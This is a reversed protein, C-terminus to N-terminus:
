VHFYRGLWRAFVIAKLLTTQKENSLQGFRPCDLKELNKVSFGYDSLVAAKEEGKAWFCINGQREGLREAIDSLVYDVKCFAYEGKESWDLGHSREAQRAFEAGYQALCRPLTLRYLHSTNTKIDCFALQKILRHQGHVFWDCDVVVTRCSM